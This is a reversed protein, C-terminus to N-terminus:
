SNTLEEHRSILLKEDAEELAQSEILIQLKGIYAAKRKEYANKLLKHQLPTANKYEDPDYDAIFTQHIKDLNNKSSEYYNIYQQPTMDDQVESLYKFVEVNGKSLALQRVREYTESGFGGVELMRITAEPEVTANTIGYKWGPVGQEIVAGRVLFKELMEASFSKSAIIATYLPTYHQSNDGDRLQENVDIIGADILALLIDTAKERDVLMIRKLKDTNSLTEYHSIDISLSPELHLQKQNDIIPANSKKAHLYESPLSTTEQHLAPAVITEDSSKSSIVYITLLIILATVILNTITKINM